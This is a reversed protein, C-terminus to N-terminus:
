EINGADRISVFTLGSGIGCRKRLQTKLPIKVFDVFCRPIQIPSLRPAGSGSQETANGTQNAPSRPRWRDFRINRLAVLLTCILLVQEPPCEGSSRGRCAFQDRNRTSGFCDFRQGHRPFARPDHPVSGPRTRARLRMKERHERRSSGVSILSLVFFFFSFPGAREVVCRLRSLEGFNYVEGRWEM